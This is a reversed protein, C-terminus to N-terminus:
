SLRRNQQNRQDHFCLYIPAGHYRRHNTIQYRGDWWIIIILKNGTSNSLIRSM